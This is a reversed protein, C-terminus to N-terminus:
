KKDRKNQKIGYASHVQRRRVQLKVRGRGKGGLDYECLTTVLAVHPEEDFEVDVRGCLELNDQLHLEPLTAVDVYCHIIGGEVRCKTWTHGMCTDTRPHASFNM